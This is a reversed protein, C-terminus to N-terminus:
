RTANHPDADTESFKHHVRHDRAWHYASDQFAMTQFIMLMVRLPFRAKYSRHAWLRHCGATIGFGSTIYLAYAALIFRRQSMRVFANEIASKGFVFTYLKASTFILWLGYVAQLHVVAFLTINRWNLVINRKEAKKLETVDVLLGGDVTQADNENLVGTFQINPTM